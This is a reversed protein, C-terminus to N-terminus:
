KSVFNQCFNIFQPIVKFGHHPSYRTIFTLHMFDPTKDILRHLQVQVCCCFKNVLSVFSWFILVCFMTHKRYSECNFLLESLMVLFYWYSDALCGIHLAFSIYFHYEQASLSVDALWSWLWIDSLKRFFFLIKLKKSNNTHEWQLDKINQKCCWNVSRGMLSMNQGSELKQTYGPAWAGIEIFIQKLNNIHETPM